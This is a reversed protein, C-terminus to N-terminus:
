SMQKPVRDLFHRNMLPLLDSPYNNIPPRQSHSFPIAITSHPDVNVLLADKVAWKELSYLISFELALEGDKSLRKVRM